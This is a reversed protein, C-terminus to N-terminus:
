GEVELVYALVTGAISRTEADVALIGRTAGRWTVRDQPQPVGWDGFDEALAILRLRDDHATGSVQQPMLSGLKDFGQPRMRVTVTADTDPRTVVAAEGVAAFAMRHAAAPNM